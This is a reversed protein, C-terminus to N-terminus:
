QPSVVRLFTNGAAYLHRAPTVGSANLPDLWEVPEWDTLNASRELRHVFRGNTSFGVPVMPDHDSQLRISTGTPATGLLGLDYRLPENSQPVVGFYCAQGAEAHFSVLKRGTFQTLAETPVPSLRNHDPGSFISIGPLLLGARPRVSTLMIEVSYRGATPAVWRNWVVGYPSDPILLREELDTSAPTGPMGTASSLLDEPSALSDQALARQFFLRGPYYDSELALQFREGNTVSFHFRLAQTENSSIVGAVPQLSRLESGRYVALRSGPPATFDALFPGTGSATWEFWLSHQAPQGAHPPEGPEASLLPGNVYDGLWLQTGAVPLRNEFQDHRPLVRFNYYDAHQWRAVNRQLEMYYEQEGPLRFVAGWPTITEPSIEALGSLDNGKFIRLVQRAASAPDSPPVVEPPAVIRVDESAPMKFWASAGLGVASDVVEGTERTLTGAPQALYFYDGNRRLPTAQLFSDNTAAGLIRPVAPTIRLSESPPVLTRLRLTEGKTAAFTGFIQNSRVADTNLLQLNSLRDGRFVEAPLNEILFLGSNPATWTWWFSGNNGPMGDTPPEGPELTAGANAFTDITSDTLPVAEAFSDNAATPSISIVGLTHNTLSNMSGGGPPRPDIFPFIQADEYSAISARDVQLWYEAGAEAQIAATASESYWPDPWNDARIMNGGNEIRLVPVLNSVTQAGATNKRWIALQPIAGPASTTISYGGGTPAVWRFWISSGGRPSPYLGRMYANFTMSYFTFVVPYTGFGPENDELTAHGLSFIAAPQDVPLTQAQAFNDNPPADTDDMTFAVWYDGDWEETSSFVFRYNFGGTVTFRTLQQPSVGFRTGSIRAVSSVNTPNLYIVLRPQFENWQLQQNLPVRRSLLVQAVGTRPATWNLWISRPPVPVLKLNGTPYTSASYHSREGLEATANTATFAQLWREGSVQIPNAFDDGPPAATAHGSALGILGAAVLTRLTRALSLLRTTSM